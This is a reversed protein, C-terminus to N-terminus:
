QFKEASYLIFTKVFIFTKLSSFKLLSNNFQITQLSVKKEAMSFLQLYDFHGNKTM